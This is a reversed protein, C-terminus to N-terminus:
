KGTETKPTGMPREVITPLVPKQKKDKKPKRTERNGRNKNAM